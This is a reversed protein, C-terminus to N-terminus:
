PKFGEVVDALQGIQADTFQGGFAAMLPSKGVAAGGLKIVKVIHARDREAWFEATNFAAPKPKLAVGAPGDGAGQAGHCPGCVAIFTGHADFSRPERAVTGQPAEKEAQETAVPKSSVEAQDAAPKEQGCAAWLLLGPLMLLKAKRM